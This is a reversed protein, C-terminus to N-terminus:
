PPETASSATPAASESRMSTAAAVGAGHEYVLDGGHYGAIGLLVLAAACVMGYVARRWTEAWRNRFFWRLLAVVGFAYISFFAFEEHGEIVKEPIGAAEVGEESLVGSLLAAGGALIGVVLLHLATRRFGERGTLIGLWDFLIAMSLLAIPFHVII